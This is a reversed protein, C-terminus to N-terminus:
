LNDLRPKVARIFSEAMVLLALNRWGCEDCDDLM